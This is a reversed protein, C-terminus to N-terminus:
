AGLGTLDSDLADFARMCLRRASARKVKRPFRRAARAYLKEWFSRTQRESSRRHAESTALSDVVAVPSLGEGLCRVVLRRVLPRYRSRFLDQVEQIPVGSDFMSSGFVGGANCLYGPLCSIGRDNLEGATGPRYPANAVPIVARAGIRGVREETIVGTRASPVLFDVTTALLEEHSITDGSHHLVFEDGREDKAQLLSDPPFGRPNVAAGVVTSIAAIRFRPAPLLMALHRGVSGFGDIALTFPASGPLAEACAEIANAASVATFFSTDTPQGITIGAGAYIARLEEPGCNMDMGPNYVGNQVLPAIQSGFSKLARIRAVAELDAPMRLGTKAGGRPLRFLSYKLTMEHALDKVEDVTLDPTIRVGGSSTNNHISDIVLYGDYEPGSALIILPSDL